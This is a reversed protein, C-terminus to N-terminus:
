HFTISLGALPSHSIDKLAPPPSPVLSWLHPPLFRPYRIYCTVFKIRSMGCEPYKIPTKMFDYLVPDRLVWLYGQVTNKVNLKGLDASRGPSAPEPNPLPVPEDHTGDRVAPRECVGRGCAEGNTFERDERYCSTLRGWSSSKMSPWANLTSM